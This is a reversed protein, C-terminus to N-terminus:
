KQCIRIILRYLFFFRGEVFFKVKNILALQDYIKESVEDTLEQIHDEDYHPLYCISKIEAFSAEIATTCNFSVVNKAAIMWSLSPSGDRIIFDLASNRISNYKLDNSFVDLISNKWKRENENLKLLIGRNNEILEKQDVKM